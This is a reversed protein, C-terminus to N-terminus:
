DHVECLSPSLGIQRTPLLNLCSEKWLTQHERRIREEKFRTVVRQHLRNSLKHGREDIITPSLPNSGGVGQDRVLHEVLSLWEGVFEYTPALYTPFVFPRAPRSISRCLSIIVNLNRGQAKGTREDDQNFSDVINPFIVV